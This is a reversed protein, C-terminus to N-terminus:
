RRHRLLRTCRGASECGARSATCSGPRSRVDAHGGPESALGGEAARRQDCSRGQHPKATKEALRGTEFQKLELAIDNGNTEDRWTMHSNTIQIGAIDIKVPKHKVTPCASSPHAGASQRQRRADSRLFNTTGDKFKVLNARLGDLRVEDVVVQKSLLPLLAVFVQVREM